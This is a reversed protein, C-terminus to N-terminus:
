SSQCPGQPVRASIELQFHAFCNRWRGGAPTVLPFRCAHRHWPQWLPLQQLDPQVIPVDCLPPLPLRTSGTTSVVKAGRRSCTALGTAASSSSTATMVGTPVGAAALPHAVFLCHRPKPRPPLPPSLHAACLFRRPEPRAPLLPFLHATPPTDTLSSCVVPPRRLQGASHSQLGAAGRRGGQGHHLMPLALGAAGTRSSGTATLSLTPAQTSPRTSAAPM